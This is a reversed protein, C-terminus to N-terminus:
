PDPQLRCNSRPQCSVLHWCGDQYWVLHYSHVQLYAKGLLRAASLLEKQVQHAQLQPRTIMKIIFVSSFIIGTVWRQRFTPPFRRSIERKVKKEPIEIEGAYVVCEEGDRKRKEIRRHIYEWDSQKLYKRVSWARLHREYESKSGLRDAVLILRQLLCRGQHLATSQVWTPCWM